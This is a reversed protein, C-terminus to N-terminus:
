VVAGTLSFRVCGGGAHKQVFTEVSRYTEVVRKQVAPLLTM